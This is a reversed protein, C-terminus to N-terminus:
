SRDLIHHSTLLKHTYDYFHVFCNTPVCKHQGGASNGEATQLVSIIPPIYKTPFASTRETQGGKCPPELSIYSASYSASNGEATQLVSIIPPYEETPFASTREAEAASIESKGMNSGGKSRDGIELIIYGAEEGRDKEKKLHGPNLYVINEIQEFYRHHTHGFCYFAVVDHGFNKDKFMERAHAIVFDFGNISFSYVANQKTIKPHFLGYVSFIQMEIEPFNELDDPEDGLHILYECDSNQILVSELLRFNSHTDSMILVKTM